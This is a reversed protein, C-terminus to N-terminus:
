RRLGGHDGRHAVRKRRHGGHRTLRGDFPTAVNRVGPVKALSAATATVATRVGAAAPDVGTVEAIVSGGVQSEAQLVEYARVSELPMGPGNSLRDFVKGSLAFGSAIIVVWVAVVLWRYRLCLQGVRAVLGPVVSGNMRNAEIDRATRVILVGGSGARPNVGTDSGSMVDPDSLTPQTCLLDEIRNNLTITGTDSM